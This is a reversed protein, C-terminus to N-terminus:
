HTAPNLEPRGTLAALRVLATRRFPAGERQGPHFDKHYYARYHKGLRRLWGNRGLLWVLGRRVSRWDTKLGSARQLRVYHVALILSFELTSILMESARLGYRGVQDRYVDFAVAKHESEEIAHWLWLPEMRPDIGELLEPNELMLEALMATFHEMACTKALQRQPSLWRALLAMGKRTAGEVVGVRLGRSEMFQNFEHHEKGHHAEQGIFGRVQRRLEADGIGEQFHRVSQIFFREGDPFISSLTTFLLTKFQDNDFWYRPIDADFRFNMIRPVIDPHEQQASM